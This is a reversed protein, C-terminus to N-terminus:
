RELTQCLTIASIASLHDRTLPARLMPTEAPPTYTRVLYPWLYFASAARVPCGGARAQAVSQGRTRDGGLSGCDDQKELRGSPSGQSAASTRRGLPSASPPCEREHRSTYWM